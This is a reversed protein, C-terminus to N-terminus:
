DPQDRLTVSNGPAFVLQGLLAGLDGEGSV